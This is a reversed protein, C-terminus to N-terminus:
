SVAERIKKGWENWVQASKRWTRQFACECMAAPSCRPICEYAFTCYLPSACMGTLLAGDWISDPDVDLIHNKPSVHTQEWFLMEIQEATKACSV